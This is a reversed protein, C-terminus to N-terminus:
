ARDAGAEGDERDRGERGGAALESDPRLEQQASHGRSKLEARVEVITDGRALTGGKKNKVQQSNYAPGGILINDVMSGSLMMGM